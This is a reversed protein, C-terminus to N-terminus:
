SEDFVERKEANLRRFGFGVMLLVMASMAFWQVAYGIHKEPSIGAVGWETVAGEIVPQDLLLERAVLPDSVVAKLRSIDLWQVRKPWGQEWETDALVIPKPIVRLRGSLTVQGEPLELEPLVTRNPDAALWGLNVPLLQSTKSETLLAVVEYGAIGQRTRNDLLLYHNSLFRGTAEFRYMNGQWQALLAMLDTHEHRDSRWQALLMEKQEARDLQWFGLSALGPAICLAIWLWCKFRVLSQEKSM